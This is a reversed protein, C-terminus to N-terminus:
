GIRGADGLPIVQSHGRSPVNVRNFLLLLALALEGVGAPAVLLLSTEVGPVALHGLSYIFYGLSTVALWAGLVRPVYGSRYLLYGLLLIHVGFFLLGIPWGDAYEDLSLMAMAPLQEGSFATLDTDGALMRLPDLLNQVNAIILIIHTLRFGAMLLALTRDVPRLLVYLLVSVAVDLAAAVLDGAVALHLMWESAVINAATAAADGQVILRPLMHVTATGAVILNILFLVGMARVPIRPPAEVEGTAATPM